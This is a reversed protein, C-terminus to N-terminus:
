LIPLLTLQRLEAARQGLPVTTMFYTNPLAIDGVAKKWQYIHQVATKCFRQISMWLDEPVGELVPTYEAFVLQHENYWAQLARDYVHQYAKFPTWTASSRKLKELYM